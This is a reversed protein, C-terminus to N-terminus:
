KGKGRKPKTEGPTVTNGLLRKRSQSGKAKDGDTETSAASAQMEGGNADMEHTEEEEEDEEPAGLALRLDKWIHKHSKQLKLLSSSLMLAAAHDKIFTICAGKLQTLDHLYGAEVMHVVNTTTLTRVAEMECATTLDACGHQAAVDLMEMPNAKIAATDVEGIYIFRLLAKITSTSQPAQIVSLGDAQNETWPGSLMAKMYGSSTALINKHAHIRETANVANSSSSSGSGCTVSHVEFVVDSYSSSFLLSSYTKMVSAPVSVTKIPQIPFPNAARAVEAEQWEDHRLLLQICQDLQAHIRQGEHSDNNIDTKLQTAFLLPTTDTFGKYGWIWKKVNFLIFDCGRKTVDKWSSETAIKSYGLLSQLIQIPKADTNYSYGGFKENNCVANYIAIHLFTVPEVAGDFFSAFSKGTFDEANKDVYEFSCTTGLPEKQVKKLLSSVLDASNGLIADRLQLELVDLQETSSSM